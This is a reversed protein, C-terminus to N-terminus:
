KLLRITPTLAVVVANFVDTCIDRCTTKISLKSQDEDM